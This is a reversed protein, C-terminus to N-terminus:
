HQGNRLKKHNGQYLHSQNENERSITYSEDEKYKSETKQKIKKATKKKKGVRQGKNLISAFM